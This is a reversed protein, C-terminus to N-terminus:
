LASAADEDLLFTADRHGALLRVPCTDPLEDGAVARRVSDAKANGTVLLLVKRASLMAPPTLTLGRMGDPRDVAACSRAEALAPSGPYLAGIHADAGMGLLLLDFGRAVLPAIERHYESAGVAPPLEGKMRHVVGAEAADLFLRKAMGYNSAGDDPPVCREDSFAIAVNTWSSKAVALQPYIREATTGGTLVLSGGGPLDTAIRRTVAAAYENAGFVEVGFSVLAAEV